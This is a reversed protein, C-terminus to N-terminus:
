HIEVASVKPQDATGVTFQVTVTSNTVTVPFTKDIATLPAGAAAIVDFNTLVQSGNILVNFVRQGAKAWYIEAFKLVVNYNGNPVTFKYTFAGWRETQYLKPDATNLINSATSAANGGTFGTDASWNQGLTDTYALGGSDVFIGAFPPLLNVTASSSQTPDAVSTATVLINQATTISAPATYLGATTGSTVLTGVQPSYSWTVATNTSGTVTAGFQQSQGAALAASPPNIQISVSSGAKIAVADVKPLDASGTSFQITISSGTVTVPFTKDIATLPAGAAAIIDFNSLVQTGNISVNFLRQGPSTWYFEAFKLVVNYMGPAVTFTYTSNGYRETQYLTPDATNTIAKTTSSVTGGSFDADALWHNGLTDTYAPGGANIYVPNFAGVPPLLTVTASASKTTDAQSTATVVVSQTATVSAPATYLGGATLTGVQPSYSWTVATNTSGTVTAGFQQSQGAALAASPPNIQVGVVPSGTQIAIASIKPLDASGTSFQIVISSGTVTVPFTKDIATLPAGAAAIIDFNSLVQTGNISVNFLRQGTSTWYFEAFKLVVNYMGPAVTFTYTSNGYRETQYLTPDATNTIAKTTSSVTGGSFDADALWHNGLTDTYAPGGANIYVPNFAGVPPLLTVTASASKTTDAQSTATVVVSQTATVSAPATYLGGATLTGVQPSYSWTVATNSSGVVSSSFQQQQTAFLSAATPTVQVFAGVAPSIEIASIKPLDASGSTFQITIAGTSTAVTFLKDIATFNAGAAAIIDFNTLVPTGNIAVNFIRQGVQTWYIEAFKLVVNYNGNPVAFTYSFNNYRETQYLTPDATNAIAHTTNSPSGGSFGKDASWVQGQSDTYAPGGANVLITATPNTNLAITFGNPLTAIQGDSDTVTVTNTGVTANASISINASIQTPSNFTCSNVTIGPGFNCVPGSLFNSGTIVVGLNLQGQLSSNPSIATITPATGTGVITYTATAVASATIGPGAAIAQLTTTSSVMVPGAYVTSQTTPTSGNTTYYIIAGVTADNIAVSQTGAYIGSTLSFAPTAAQKAGSSLLGFVDLEGSISTSQFVGGTNNGRTGVYVKGNAVTPVTFKVANGPTNGTGQTSNWLENALNTADYAHLVTPGCTGSQKTCYSGNNLAWVIGNTTGSSSVSPTSGPFGYTTPSQSAAPTNFTGMGVNFTFAQVPGKNGALYFTQNWFAGTAFIGNGFSFRQWASGDGSGGLSDRSLLYLFGDKGGGIVLRPTPSMPQDVLIASGGSGFDLDSLNDNSQDSPTFFSSVVLNSSLKLFSDGYDNNPATSNTANFTGNGTLLYLNNSSDFSPAGGGMWIGAQRFNPADNFVAAPTLTSANYSMVWGYWPSTDEHSGWAIYIVGNVLALGARQNQQQPSFTTTTGGDGTGPYTGAIIVPSGARENGTTIDIAHLRQYFTPGATNVSKSVVYLMNTSPDIVPTGTIGVEPAIDGDGQGVLFNTPLSPVPSEASSGGHLNDILSVQWLPTCPTTNVDADFAYLSDHETAVLIVNHKAGGVTLNAVWLPQAYIAGDVTCSFLKGFTASSVNAPVLSYESPNSGNRSVNNHYTFVGAADTVGFTVTASKTPDKVSTATVSYVGASAAATYTTAVGSLTSTASFSGGTASWIVGQNQTDNVLTAALPTAQGITLGTIVQPSLTVAISQARAVGVGALCVALALLMIKGLHRREFRHLKM